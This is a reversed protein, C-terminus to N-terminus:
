KNSFHLKGEREQSQTYTYTFHVNLWCLFYQLLLFDLGFHVAFRTPLKCAEQHGTSAAQRSRSFASARRESTRKNKQRKDCKPGRCLLPLRPARPAWGATVGKCPFQPLLFNPLPNAPGAASPKSSLPLHRTKGQYMYISM